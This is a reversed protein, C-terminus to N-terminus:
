YGILTARRPKRLARTGWLMLLLGLSIGGLLVAVEEPNKEAYGEARKLLYDIRSRPENGLIKDTTQEVGLKFEDFISMVKPYTVAHAYAIVGLLMGLGIIFRMLGRIGPVDFTYQPAVFMVDQSQPPRYSKGEEYVLPPVEEGVGVEVAASSYRTGYFSCALLAYLVLSSRLLM